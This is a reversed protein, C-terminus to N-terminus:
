GENMGGKDRVTYIKYRKTIYVFHSYIAPYKM